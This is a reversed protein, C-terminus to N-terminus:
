GTVISLLDSLVAFATERGGAGPGKICVEGLIDTDIVLGNQAGTLSGLFSNSDVLVPKVSALNNIALASDVKVAVEDGQVKCKVNKGNIVEGILKYRNGEAKAKMVMQSTIKTIGECSVDDYSIDAGLIANALILVKGAVDHGEVDGTPDTEAYGLEQAQKLASEYDLGKEMECLIYNTTGNLVGSISSIDAGALSKEILSIVPTGAVVTGEIKFQLKKAKAKNFLRNYDLAVPGKNVTIVNMNNDFAIDMHKTGPLGDVFNTPTVEVLIDAKAKEILEITSLNKEGDCVESIQKGAKKAGIIEALPLGDNNLVSGKSAGAIGVISVSLDYKEAMFETKDLILQAFAEGVVGFGALVVKVNKM